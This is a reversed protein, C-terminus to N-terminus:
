VIQPNRIILITYCLPGWLGIRNNLGRYGYSGSGRLQSSSTGQRGFGGLGLVKFSFGFESFAAVRFLGCM